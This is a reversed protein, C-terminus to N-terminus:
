KCLFKIISTAQDESYGIESILSNKSYVGRIVEDLIVNGTIEREKNASINSNQTNLDLKLEENTLEVGSLSLLYKALTMDVKLYKCLNLFSEKNFSNDNFDFSSVMSEVPNETTTSDESDRIPTDEQNVLSRVTNILSSIYELKEKNSDLFEQDIFDNGKLFSNVLNQENRPNNGLDISLINCLCTLGSNVARVLPKLFKRFTSSRYKLSQSNRGDTAEATFESPPIYTGIRLAQKYYEADNMSEPPNDSTLKSLEFGEGKPMWIQDTMGGIKEQTSALGAMQGSGFLTEKFSEKYNQVQSFAVTPNDSPTPVSVVVKDFKSAKFFASLDETTVLRNGIFLLDELIGKGYLNSGKNVSFQIFEWPMFLKNRFEETFDAKEQFFTDTLKFGVPIRLPNNTIAEYYFPELVQFFYSDNNKVIWVACDGYRILSKIIEDVDLFYKKFLDTLSLVVKPTSEISFALDTNSSYSEALYKQVAYKVDPIQKEMVRIQNYIELRDNDHNYFVKKSFQSSFTDSNSSNISKPVIIPDGGSQSPIEILNLYDLYEKSLNRSENTFSKINAKLTNFASDPTKQEQPQIGLTKLKFWSM